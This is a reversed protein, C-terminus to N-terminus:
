VRVRKIELDWIKAIERVRKRAHTLNSSLNFFRMNKTPVIGYAKQSAELPTKVKDWCGRSHYPKETPDDLVWILWYVPREPLTEGAWLKPPDRALAEAELRNM